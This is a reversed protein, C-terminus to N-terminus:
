KKIKRIKYVDHMNNGIIIIQYNNGIIIIRYKNKLTM